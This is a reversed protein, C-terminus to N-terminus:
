RSVKNKTQLRLKNEKLHHTIPNTKYVIFPPFVLFTIEAGRHTQGIEFAAGRVVRCNGRWGPVWGM